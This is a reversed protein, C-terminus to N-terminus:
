PEPKPKPLAALLADLMRAPVTVMAAREDERRLAQRAAEVHAQAAARAGDLIRQHRQERERIAM